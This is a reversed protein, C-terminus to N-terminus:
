LSAPDTEADLSATTTGIADIKSGVGDVLTSLEAIEEPTAGNSLDAIKQKLAAVDAQIGTVSTGINDLATSQASVKAKLDDIVQSM